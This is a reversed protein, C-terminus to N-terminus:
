RLGGLTEILRQLEQLLQKRRSADQETQLRENVAAISQRLALQKLKNLCDNAVITASELEINETWVIQALRQAIEPNDIQERLRCIDLVQEDRLWELLLAVLERDVPNAYVDLEQWTLLLEEANVRNSLILSLLRDEAVQYGRFFPDLDGITAAAAASRTTNRSNGLKDGQRVQSPSLQKTLEALVASEPV